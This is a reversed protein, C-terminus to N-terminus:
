VYTTTEMIAPGLNNDTPKIILNSNDKLLKLTKQQPFTLNNLNLKTTRFSQTLHAAKLAKEFSTLKDEIPTLAPLPSWYKNKVYIQKIYKGENALNNDELHYKIPSSAMITPAANHLITYPM